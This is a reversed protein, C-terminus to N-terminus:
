LFLRAFCELLQAKIVYPIAGWTVTEYILIGFAWMDTASSFKGDRLVEPACWRVPVLGGSRMTYYDKGDDTKLARSMGFDGVKFTYGHDVM